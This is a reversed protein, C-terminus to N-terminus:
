RSGLPPYRSAAVAAEAERASEIRPVVVGRAGADLAVGITDPRNAGVRVLPPVGALDLVRVMSVIAAAGLGPTEGHICLFDWPRAQAMAEVSAEASVLLFSGVLQEGAQLRAKPWAAM